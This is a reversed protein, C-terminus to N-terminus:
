SLGVAAADRDTLLGGDSREAVTGDRKWSRECRPEDRLDKIAVADAASDLEVRSCGFLDPLDVAFPVLDGDPDPVVVGADLKNEIGDSKADELAKLVQERRALVLEWAPDASLNPGAFVEQQVSAGEPRLARWAEDATHPLIPALLKILVAAIEKM